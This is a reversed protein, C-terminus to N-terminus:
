EKRLSELPDSRGARIAPYCGSALTTVLLAGGVGLLISPDIPNMDYFVASIVPRLGTLIALGLLLGVAALWAGAGFVMRRIVTPSAGLASRVGFEHARAGAFASLASFVGIGALTAALFGFVMLLARVQRPQELTGALRSEMSAIRDIPQDADMSAVANRVVAPLSEDSGLGKVVLSARGLREAQRYPVYLQPGAAVDLGLNKIDDVVGVVTRWPNENSGLRLRKGVPSEDAFFRDALARSVVVAPLASETDTTSIWRGSLLRIGMVDAYGADATVHRGFPRSAPDDIEKGEIAFSNGEYRDVGPPLASALAAAGVGPAAAIRDRLREFFNLQNYRERYRSGHLTIDVGVLDDPQFGLDVNLMRWVGKTVAGTSALLVLTLALQAIVVSSLMRRHKLGMGIRLDGSRLASSLNQRTGVLAPLLAFGILAIATVGVAFLVVRWDFPITDIGLTRLAPSSLVVRRSMAAAMIGVASGILVIVAHESIVHRILHGRNAGVAARVLLDRRGGAARALSLGSLNACAVLLMLGVSGFLGLLAPRADGFLHERLPVVETSFEAKLQTRVLRSQLFGLESKVESLGVGPRLRGVIGRVISRAGRREVAEDKALPTFLQVTPMGPFRFSEPLIGVVIYPAGDLVVPSGITELRGSFESQWFEHTLIAVKDGGRLDEEPLFNRGIAPGVGLIPLLGASIRASRLRRPSSLGTVVRSGPNFAGIESLTSNEDRWALYDPTPTVADVTNTKMIASIWVLQDSNAYPLPRLLVSNVVAFVALTFGTAIALTIVSVSAFLLDRRAMRRAIAPLQTLGVM